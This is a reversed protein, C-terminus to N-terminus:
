PVRHLATGSLVLDVWPLIRDIPAELLVVEVRALNPTTTLLWWCRLASPPPPPAAPPPLNIKNTSVQVIVTLRHRCSSAASSTVVVAAACGWYGMGCPAFGFLCFLFLFFCLVLLLLLKLDISNPHPHERGREGGALLCPPGLSSPVPLPPTSSDLSYFSAISVRNPSIQLSCPRM